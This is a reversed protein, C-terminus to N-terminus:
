AWATQKVASSLLKLLFWWDMIALTSSSDIKHIKLGRELTSGFVLAKTKLKILVYFQLCGAVIVLANAKRGVRGLIQQKLSVEHTAPHDDQLV